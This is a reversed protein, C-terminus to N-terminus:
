EERYRFVSFRGHPALAPAPTLHLAAAAQEVEEPADSLQLDQSHLLLQRQQLM